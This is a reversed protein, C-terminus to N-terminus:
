TKTFQVQYTGDSVFDSFTLVFTATKGVAIVASTANLTTTCGISSAAANITLEINGTNEVIYNKSFTDGSVVGLSVSSSSSSVGNVTFSPNALQFTGQETWSSIIEGAALGTAVAALIIITTALTIKTKRM